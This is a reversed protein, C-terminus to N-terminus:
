DDKLYRGAIWFLLIILGVAGVFGITLWVLVMSMTMTEYGTSYM